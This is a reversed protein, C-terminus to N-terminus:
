KRSCTAGGAPRYAPGRGSHGLGATVDWIPVAARLAHVCLGSAGKGLSDGRLVRQPGGRRWGARGTWAREAKCGHVGTPSDYRVPLTALAAPTPHGAAPASLPELLVSGLRQYLIVTQM